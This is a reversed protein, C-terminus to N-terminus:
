LAAKRSDTIRGYVATMAPTVDSKMQTLTTTSLESTTLSVAEFSDPHLQCTRGSNSQMPQLAVRVRQILM